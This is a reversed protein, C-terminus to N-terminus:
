AATELSFHKNREGEEFATFSQRWRDGPWLYTVEGRTPRYVATYVTGFGDAYDRNYLPPAFFAETLEALSLGEGARELLCAEREFSFTGRVSPTDQDHSQHNTVVQADSVLAPRDPAVMVTAIDGTADILLVNQAHTVPLRQLAATAQATTECTELLYRIVWPIGFGPGYVFRGGFTLSAVLGADNMGDLAGNHAEAMALVRRGTWRSLLITGQTFRPDFDYNRILVPEPDRRAIQSCGTFVAPPHWGSLARAAIEDGGVLATLAEHLSLLEPMHDSLAARCESLSPRAAEGDKLYWDRGEPWAAQFGALWKPGPRDEAIAHFTKEM